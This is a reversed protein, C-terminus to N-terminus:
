FCRNPLLENKLILALFIFFLFFSCVEATLRTEEATAMTNSIPQSVGLHPTSETTATKWSMVWEEIHDVTKTHSIGGSTLFKGKTRSKRSGPFNYMWVSESELSLLKVCETIQEFGCLVFEYFCINLIKSFQASSFIISWKLTKYFSIFFM